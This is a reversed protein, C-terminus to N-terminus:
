AIDGACRTPFDGANLPIAIRNPANHSDSGLRNGVKLADRAPSLAWPLYVYTAYLSLLASLTALRAFYSVLAVLSAPTPSGSFGSGNAMTPRKSTFASPNQSM